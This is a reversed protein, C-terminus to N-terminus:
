ELKGWAMLSEALTEAVTRKMRDLLLLEMKQRHKKMLETQPAVKRRLKTREEGTSDEGSSVADELTQGETEDDALSCEILAMHRRDRIRYKKRASPKSVKLVEAAKRKLRKKVCKLADGESKKVESVKEM